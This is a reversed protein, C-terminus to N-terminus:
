EDALEVRDGDALRDAGVDVVLEGAHLGSDALLELHTDNEFGGFVQVKRVVGGRAGEEDDLDVVFCSIVDGAEYLLAKKPILIADEHVDLVLKIEVLIGTPLLRDGPDLAGIVKVTGTSRDVIPAVREIHGSIEIGPLAESTATLVQGVALDVMERQPRYFVVKPASMDTLEFARTTPAMDGVSIERATVTGAIPARLTCRDLALQARDEAVEAARCTTKAANWEQLSNELDSESVLVTGGSTSSELLRLNREHDRKAKDRAVETEEVRVEAEALELRADDARLEALIQGETVVDGEEALVAVVREVREPIVEVIELSAVNATAELRKEVRGTGVKAVRVLSPAEAEEDIAVASGSADAERDTSEGDSCAAATLFLAALALRRLTQFKM